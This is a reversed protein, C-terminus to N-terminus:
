HREGDDRDIGTVTVTGLRESQERAWKRSERVDMETVGFLAALQADTAEVFRSVDEPKDLTITGGHPASVERTSTSASEPPLPAAETFDESRIPRAADYVSWTSQLEDRLGRRGPGRFRM